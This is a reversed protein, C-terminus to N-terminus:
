AAPPVLAAVGDVAATLSADLAPLEAIGQRYPPVANFDIGHVIKDCHFCVLKGGDAAFEADALSCHSIFEVDSYSCILTPLIRFM